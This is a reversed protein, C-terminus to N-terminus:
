NRRRQRSTTFGFFIAAGMVIIYALVEWISMHGSFYFALIIVIWLCLVGWQKWTRSLLFAIM